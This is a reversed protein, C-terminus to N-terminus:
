CFHMFKIFTQGQGEPQTREEQTQTQERHRHRAAPSLHDSSALKPDSHRGHGKEKVREERKEGKEEEQEGRSAWM